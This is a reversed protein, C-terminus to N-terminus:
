AGKGKKRRGAQDPQVAAHEHRRLLEDEREAYIEERSPLRGHEDTLRWLPGDLFSRVAERRRDGVRESLIESVFKSLSKGQQAAEVRAKLVLDDDLSITVNKM